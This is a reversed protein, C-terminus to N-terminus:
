IAKQDQELGYIDAAYSLWRCYDYNFRATINALYRDRRKSKIDILKSIFCPVNMSNFIEDYIFVVLMYLHGQDIWFDNLQETLLEKNEQLENSETYFEEYLESTKKTKYKQFISLKSLENRYETISLEINGAIGMSHQIFANQSKINSKPLRDDYIADKNDTAFPNTVGSIDHSNFTFIKDQIDKGDKLSKLYELVYELKAVEIDTTAGKEYKGDNLKKKLKDAEYFNIYVKAYNCYCLLLSFIINRLERIELNKFQKKSKPNVSFTLKAPRSLESRKLIFKSINMDFYDFIERSFRNKGWNDQFIECMVKTHYGYIVKPITNNELNDNDLFHNEICINELKNPEFVIEKYEIDKIPYIDQNYEHWELAPIYKKKMKLFFHVFLSVYTLIFNDYEKFLQTEKESIPASNIKILNEDFTHKHYMGILEQINLVVETLIASFIYKSVSEKNYSVNLKGVYRSINMYEHQLFKKASINTYSTLDINDVYDKIIDKIPLLEKIESLFFEKQSIPYRIILEIPNKEKM